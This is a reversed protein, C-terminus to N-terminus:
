TSINKENNKIKKYINLELKNNFKSTYFLKKLGLGHAIFSNFYFCFNNMSKNTDNYPYYTVLEYFQDDRKFKLIDGKNLKKIDKTDVLKYIYDMIIIGMTYILNAIEYYLICSIM